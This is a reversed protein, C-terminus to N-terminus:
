STPASPARFAWLRQRPRIAPVPATVVATTTEFASSPRRGALGRRKASVIGGAVGPRGDGIGAIGGAAPRTSRSQYPRHTMSPM